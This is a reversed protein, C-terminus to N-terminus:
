LVPRNEAYFATFGLEVKQAWTGSLGLREGLSSGFPDPFDIASNVGLLFGLCPSTTLRINRALLPPIHLTVYMSTAGVVRPWIPTM